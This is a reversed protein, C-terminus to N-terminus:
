GYLDKIVAEMGGVMELSERSPKGTEMDWGISNFFNRALAKNDVTVGATPGETLPPKGVARDAVFCDAPKVGERLNFAHQMNIIRAGAAFQEPIGFPKGTVAEMSRQLADPVGTFMSFVCLGAACTVDNVFTAYKDNDGTGEYNYKVEAPAPGQSLGLGGKMHRGPAPNYQFTRAFGPALRPDHMPLEIGNATVLYEAGKGLRKAAGMSGLALIKGLGTQDAIAQTLAVIAQANGWTLELGDTESRSLLGNEYCEIAWAVTGGTSITDLGSRNCIENCKIIAEANDNLVLGGFAGMTEYEPRYTEGVPWEGDDVEYEAGCGMPCRNCAYKGKKYLPDMTMADLKHASTEGFQTLGVGTWNKIPTDGSLASAGTGAGTGLQSLAGMMMAMPGNKMADSIIKNTEILRAHHAVPIKGTGRVAIAKLKKSGMVAGVGGRAAARHYDNMVASILSLKEGAPGIVAARVRKEATAKVLAQQTEAVDKGWLEKADRIEVTGDNIWIYVPSKAAGVVFVADFGARKLEPGFHGGSNSDNWGGTVPSKCVVFYRGSFFSGTETLPGTVFGLVNEPGLPDVGPKMMEYLVSAGLGNGGIFYSARKEDLEKVTFSGATL